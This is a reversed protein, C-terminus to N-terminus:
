EYGLDELVQDLRHRAADRRRELEPLSLRYEHWWGEVTEFLERRADACRRHLAAQLAQRGEPEAAFVGVLAFRDLPGIPALAEVFSAACRSDARTWWSMFADDLERDQAARAPATDIRDKLAQLSELAPDIEFYHEDRPVLVRAPDFRHAAFMSAQSAVEIRPVGGVLHARVDPSTTALEDVHRRIALNYDNRALEEATVVSSFGPVPEFAAFVVSIREIHEVGLVNQARGERVEREANVFLVKRQRDRTKANPARLVLISAPITTGYFLNPGLGIVAELRDDEILRRRIEQEAGGRFLVGNPAVTCVMGGERLVAMMHQVFMLDAKKKPSSHGYAFRERYTLADPDYSQSFPPNALVRDFKVLEGDHVHLPQALTDGNRLDADGRGHLIMNMRAMSWAAGNAEQGYLELGSAARNAAILMGGSGSCPDYVRMGPKPDALRVMLRVVSRPTYFEGGKKGASDAFQGILYEYAAGLLDPSEFDENRLRHQDFHEILARLDRDSLTARGVRRCFDIHELVGELSANSRELTALAANLGAGIDTRLARITSWRAQKPVTFSGELALEDSCRKLFLLGFIYQKFESADMRGRLLDAAAFLHRELQSLTLPM